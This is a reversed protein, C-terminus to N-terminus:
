IWALMPEGAGAPKMAERLAMTCTVLPTIDVGSNKRSWAWADGLPRQAAGRIATVLETTGLHRITRQEVADVFAGCAEAQDSASL